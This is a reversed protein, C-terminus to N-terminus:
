RTAHSRREAEAEIEKTHRGVWNATIRKSRQRQNVKNAVWEEREGDRHRREPQWKPWFEAALEVIKGARSDRSKETRWASGKGKCNACWSGRSILNGKKPARTRAFYMGCGDCRFLRIREPADLLELFMATAADVINPLTKRLSQVQPGTEQLGSFFAKELFKTTESLKKRGYFNRPVIVLRPGEASFQLMPPNREVYDQLFLKEEARLARQSPKEGDETKGSDIWTDVLIRLFERFIYSVTPSDNDSIGDRKGTVLTNILSQPFRGNLARLINEVSGGKGRKDGIFGCVRM